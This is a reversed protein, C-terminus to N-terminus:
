DQYRKPAKEPEQSPQPAAALMSRYIEAAVNRSFGPRDKAPALRMSETPEVPVLTWGEPAAQRPAAANKARLLGEIEEIIAYLPTVFGTGHMVLEDVFGDKEKCTLGSWRSEDRESM